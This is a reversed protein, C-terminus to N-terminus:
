IPMAASTAGSFAHGAMAVFTHDTVLKNAVAAAGEASAMDDQAVLEFKWGQFDGLDAVAIKMAQSMDVGFQSYDGTMPGAYGIKITQGKAIKACGPATKCAEPEAAAAPGCASLTLAIVLMLFVVIRKM